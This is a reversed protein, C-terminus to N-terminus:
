RLHLRRLGGAIHRTMFLSALEADHKELAQLLQQHEVISQEVNERDVLGRSRFLLSEKMVQEIIAALRPSRAAQHIKRHFDINCQYYVGFDEREAADLMQEHLSRFDSLEDPTVRQAALEAAQAELSTRIRYIEEIEDLNLNRVVVTRSSIRELLGDILLERMAERVPARSMVLRDALDRETVKDRLVGQLILEEIKARAQASLSDKKM